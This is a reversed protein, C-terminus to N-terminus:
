YITFATNIDTEIATNVANEDTIFEQINSDFYNSSLRGIELIARDNNNISGTALEVGKSRITDNGASDYTLTILDQIADIRQGSAVNTGATWFTNGNGCNLYATGTNFMARNTGVFPFNCTIYHCYNSTRNTFSGTTMYQSSTNVFNLAPKGNVSNVSTGNYILPQNAATTQTLDIANGSQDHWNANGSSPRIGTEAPGSPRSISSSRKGM